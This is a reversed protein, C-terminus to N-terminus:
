PQPCAPPAKACAGIVIAGGLCVAKACTEGTGACDFDDSCATVGGDCSGALGTASGVATSPRWCCASETGPDPRVCRLYTGKAAACTEAETTCFAKGNAPMCCGLGATEDCPCGPLVGTEGGPTGAEGDGAADEVAARADGYRVELNTVSECAGLSLVLSGAAAALGALGALGALKLASM